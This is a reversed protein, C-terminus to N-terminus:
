PCTEALKVAGFDIKTGIRITAGAPVNQSCVKWDRDLVQHRGQGSADHSSTFFIENNTLAQIDDQAKQLNVSVLNPMTWQQPAVSLDLTPSTSNTGGSGGNGGTVGGPQCGALVLAAGVACAVWTTRKTLRRV